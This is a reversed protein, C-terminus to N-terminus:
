RGFRRLWANGPRDSNKAVHRIHTVVSHAVLSRGRRLDAPGPGPEKPQLDALFRGGCRVFFEKGAPVNRPKDRHVQRWAAPVGNGQTEMQQALFFFHCSLRGDRDAAADPLRHPLEDGLKGARICVAHTSRQNAEPELLRPLM